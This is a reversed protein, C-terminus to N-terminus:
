RCDARMAVANTSSGPILQIIPCAGHDRPAQKASLGDNRSAAARPM